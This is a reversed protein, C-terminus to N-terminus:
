KKWGTSPLTTSLPTKQADIAVPLGSTARNACSKQEIEGSTSARGAIACSYRRRVWRQATKFRVIAPSASTRKSVTGNEVNMATLDNMAVPNVDIPTASVTMM